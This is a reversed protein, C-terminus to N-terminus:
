AAEGPGAPFDHGGVDHDAHRRSQRPTHTHTHHTPTSHHAHNLHIFDYTSCPHKTATFHKTKGGPKRGPGGRVGVCPCRWRCPRMSTMWRHKSPRHSSVHTCLSRTWSCFFSPRGAQAPGHADRIGLAAMIHPRQGGSGPQTGAAWGLGIVVVM